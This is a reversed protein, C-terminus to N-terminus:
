WFIIWVERCLMKIYNHLYDSGHTIFLENNSEMVNIFQTAVSICINKYNFGKHLGLMIDDIAKTIAPTFENSIDLDDKETFLIKQIRCLPALLLSFIHIAQCKFLSADLIEKNEIIMEFFRIWNNVLNSHLLNYLFLEDLANEIFTKATDIM